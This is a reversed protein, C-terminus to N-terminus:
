SSMTRFSGLLEKESLYSKKSTERKYTRGEKHGTGTM